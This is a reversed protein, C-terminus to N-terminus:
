IKEAFIIGTNESYGEKTIKFDSKTLKEILLESGNHYEILIHSFNELVNKDTNLIVDYECGECDIKMIANHIDFENILEQISYQRIKEGEDTKEMLNGLGSLTSDIMIESSKSACGGHINIIQNKMNNISVNKEAFRYNKPFPELSIVRKAGKHIFSIASDGINGGIDIITKDELLFKEYTKDIFCSWIDGLWWGDFFLKKNETDLVLTNFNNEFSIKYLNNYVLKAFKELRNFLTINISKIKKSLISSFIKYKLGLKLDLKVIIESGDKRELIEIKTETGKLPGSIVKILFSNESKKIYQSEFNIEKKITKVFLTQQIIGESSDIIKYKIQPPSIKM